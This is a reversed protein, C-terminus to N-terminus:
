LSKAVDDADPNAAAYADTFVRAIRLSESAAGRPSASIHL